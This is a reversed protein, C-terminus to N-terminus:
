KLFMMMRKIVEVNIENFLADQVNLHEIKTLTDWDNEDFDVENWSSKVTASTKNGVVVGIDFKAIQACLYRHHGDLVVSDVVKIDEFKLGLLMKYYIRNIIPICLRTQSPHFPIKNNDIFETISELTIREM